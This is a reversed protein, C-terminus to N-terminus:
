TTDADEGSSRAAGLGMGAEESASRDQEVTAQSPPDLHERERSTSSFTPSFDVQM